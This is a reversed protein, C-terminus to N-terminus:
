WQLECDLHRFYLFKLILPTFLEELDLSRARYHERRNVALLESHLSSYVDPLESDKPHDAM